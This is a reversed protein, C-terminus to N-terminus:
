TSVGTHMSYALKAAAESQASVSADEYVIVGGSLIALRHGFSLANSMSHTTMVVTRGARALGGIVSELLDIAQQDLGSEPEDMLLVSPEHILARVISIRKRLGHSLGGTRQNLRTAVGLSDAVAEIRADLRDLGFMRGAFKLNELVTLDDYLLPDHTVVGIGRRVLQGQLVPSLGMIKVFGSDPKTLGALVRILTTKGIGNLGLLSLVEGERVELSLGRLVPVRGFAKSVNEVQVPPSHQTAINNGLSSHM